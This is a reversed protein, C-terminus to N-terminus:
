MRLFPSLMHSMVRATEWPREAAFESALEKAVLAAEGRRRGCGGRRRNESPGSM